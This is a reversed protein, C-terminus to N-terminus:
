AGRSKAAAHPLPTRAACRTTQLNNIRREGIKHRGSRPAGSGSIRATKSPAQVTVFFLAKLHGGTQGLPEPLTRAGKEKTELEHTTAGGPRNHLIKDDTRLLGRWAPRAAFPGRKGVSEASSGPKEIVQRWRLRRLAIVNVVGSRCSPDYSIRDPTLPVAQLEEVGKSLTARSLGDARSVRSTDGCGREEANGAAVVHRAYEELHRAYPCLTPLTQAGAM